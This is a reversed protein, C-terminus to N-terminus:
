GPWIVLCSCVEFPCEAQIAAIDMCSGFAVVFFLALLNPIQMPDPPSPPHEASTLESQMSMSEPLVHTLLQFASTRPPASCAHVQTFVAPWHINGPFSEFQFM